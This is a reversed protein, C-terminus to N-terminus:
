YRDADPNEWDPAATKDKPPPLRSVFDLVASMDKDSFEKIQKVMDPNANRRKGDRIWEFQRMLYKYHQGELRPFFKEDSGEGKEGHCRVCNDKYLKEGLALDTGPGQGNEPTMPLTEIYAAVDAVAQAGGPINEPKAFPYMTPNDRNLARIDALQKITVHRHQGALLPFTGDDKGWGNPMHCGQCAGVDFYIDRGRDVDGTLELAEDKEGGKENWASAAPFTALSVGLAAGLFAARLLRRKM